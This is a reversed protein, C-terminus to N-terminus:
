GLEDGLLSGDDQHVRLGPLDEGHGATRLEVRVELLVDRLVAEVVGDLRGIFGARRDFDDGSGAGQVFAQDRRQGRDEAMVSEILALAEDHSVLM